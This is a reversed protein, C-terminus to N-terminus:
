ITKLNVFFYNRTLHKEVLHNRVVRAVQGLDHFAVQFLVCGLLCFVHQQFILVNVFIWSKTKNHAHFNFLLLVLNTFATALNDESRFLNNNQIADPVGLGDDCGRVLEVAEVLGIRKSQAEHEVVGDEM